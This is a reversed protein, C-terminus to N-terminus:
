PDTVDKFDDRPGLDEEFRECARLSEVVWSPSAGRLDTLSKGGPTSSVATLVDRIEQDTPERGEAMSALERCRKVLQSQVLDNPDHPIPGSWSPSAAAPPTRDVTGEAVGSGDLPASPASPSLPASPSSPSSPSPTEPPQGTSRRGRIEKMLLSLRAVEESSGWDRARAIASALCAGQHRHTTWPPEPTRHFRNGRDHGTTLEGFTVGDVVWPKYLPLDGVGLEELFREVRRRIATTIIRRPYMDGAIISPALRFRRFDDVVISAVFHSYFDQAEVSRLNLRQSEGIRDGRVVPV